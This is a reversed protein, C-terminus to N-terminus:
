RNNWDEMANQLEVSRHFMWYIKHTDYRRAKTIFPINKTYRLYNALEQDYCYLFDNTQM